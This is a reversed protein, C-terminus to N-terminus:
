MRFDPLLSVIDFSTQATVNLYMTYIVLKVPAQFDEQLHIGDSQPM